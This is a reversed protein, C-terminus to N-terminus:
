LPFTDNHFCLEKDSADEVQLVTVNQWKWVCSSVWLQQMVTIEKVDPTSCISCTTYRKGQLVVASIYEFVQYPPPHRIQQVSIRHAMTLNAPLRMLCSETAKKRMNEKFKWGRKRWLLDTLRRTNRKDVHWDKTEQVKKFTWTPVLARPNNSAQTHPKSQESM